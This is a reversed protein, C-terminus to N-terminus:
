TRYWHENILNKLSLITIINFFLWLLLSCLVRVHIILCYGRCLDDFVLAVLGVGVSTVVVHVPSMLCLLLVVFLVFSSFLGQLSCHAAM